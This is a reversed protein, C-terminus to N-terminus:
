LYHSLSGIFQNAPNWGDVSAIEEKLPGVDLDWSPPNTSHYKDWGNQGVKARVTRAKHWWIGAKLGSSITYWDISVTEVLPDVTLVCLFSTQFWCKPLKM